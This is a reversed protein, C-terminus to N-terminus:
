PFSVFQSGWGVAAAPYVYQLQTVDAVSCCTQLSNQAPLPTNTPCCFVHSVHHSFFFNSFKVKVQSFLKLGCTYTYIELHKWIYGRQKHHCLMESWVVCRYGKSPTRWVVLHSSPLVHLPNTKGWDGLFM